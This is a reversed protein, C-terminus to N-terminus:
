AAVSAVLDDMGKSFGEKVSDPVVKSIGYLTGVTLLSAGAIFFLPILFTLSVAAWGGLAWVGAGAALAVTGTTILVKKM